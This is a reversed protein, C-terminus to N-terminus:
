LFLKLVKVLERYLYEGREKRKIIKEFLGVTFGVSSYRAGFDHDSGKSLATDIIIKDRRWTHDDYIGL